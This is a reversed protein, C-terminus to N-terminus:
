PPRGGILLGWRAFSSRDSLGVTAWTQHLRNNHIFDPATGGYGPNALDIRLDGASQYREKPDKQLARLIV